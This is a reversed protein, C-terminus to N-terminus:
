GSHTHIYVEFFTREIQPKDGTTRQEYTMVVLTQKDSLDVLTKVLAALAKFQVGPMEWNVSVNEVLM